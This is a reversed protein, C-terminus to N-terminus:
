IAPRGELLLGRPIKGDPAMNKIKILTESEEKLINLMKHMRAVSKVKSKMIGVKKAKDSADKIEDIASTELNEDVMDDGAGAIKFLHGLLSVVKDALFPMSWSFVDIQDPLFYPHDSQDYQKISIRDDKLILVAAKNSYYDCYNPASFITIVYPFSADGDWRHMKYGDVQVQHARVVSMLDNKELLKKVPKRGFMYSCERDENDKYEYELANADDLPDSWLLDCFMGETPPEKFRDIKQIDRIKKLDPSIGGHVAFYKKNVIAALPLADFLDMIMNYIDEDFKMLTEERFTFHQTM